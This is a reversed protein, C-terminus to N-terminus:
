PDVRLTLQRDCQQGISGPGVAFVLCDLLNPWSEVICHHFREVRLGAPRLLVLGFLVIAALDFLCEPRESSEVSFVLGADATRSRIDESSIARVMLRSSALTARAM